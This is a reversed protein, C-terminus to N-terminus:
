DPNVTIAVATTHTMANGNADYGVARVDVTVTTGAAAVADAPLAAAAALEAVAVGASWRFTAADTNPTAPTVILTGNAPLLMWAAAGDLTNNTAGADSRRVYFRVGTTFPDATTAPVAAVPATDGADDFDGDNNADVGAVAVTGAPGTAELQLVSRTPTTGCGDDDVDWCLTTVATTSGRRDVSTLGADAVAFGTFSAATPVSIGFTASSTADISNGGQDYVRVGYAEAAQMTGSVNLTGTVVIQSPAAANQEFPTGFGGIIQSTQQIAHTRTGDGLSENFLLYGDARQLDLNDFASISFTKAEGSEVPPAFSVVAAPPSTDLIGRLNTPEATNGANDMAAYELFYYGNAGSAFDYRGDSGPGVSSSADGAVQCRRTSSHWGVLCAARATQLDPSELTIRTHVPNTPFGSPASGSGGLADRYVLFAENVTTGSAVNQIVGGDVLYDGDDAGLLEQTPATLDVGFKFGATADVTERDGASNAIGVCHDPVEFAEIEMETADDGPTCDAEADFGAWWRTTENGLLDRVTANLVYASNSFTAALDDATAVASVNDTSPGASYEYDAWNRGVGGDSFDATRSSSSFTFAYGAGAWRSIPYHRNPKVALHFDGITPGKNDLRMFYPKDVTADDGIPTETPGETGDSYASSVMHVVIPAPEIGGVRKQDSGSARENAWTVEFPAEEDTISAVIEDRDLTEDGDDRSTRVVSGDAAHRLGLTVQAITEGTYIVPLVRATVAGSNWMLGDSDMARNGDTAITLEYRNDNDFEVPVTNSSITEHGHMGDAMTVGIELEASITHEGNM